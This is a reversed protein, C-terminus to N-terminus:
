ASADVTMGVSLTGSDVPLLYRGFRVGEDDRRYTALTRLPEVGTSVGTRQDITTVQCRRCPYPARARLSGLRVSTWEDEAGSRSGRVVINPRFRDMPVAEAGVALLRGNLEDLTAEGVLLVPAADAFGYRNSPEGLREDTTREADDPMWVLRVSRGLLDSAFRDAEPSLRIAEVQDRWVTVRLRPGADSGFPVRLADSATSLLLEREAIAAGLLALRPLGRQSVFTGEDDVLLFRRDHLLGREDVPWSLPSFGAGGKLPHVHLSAISIPM